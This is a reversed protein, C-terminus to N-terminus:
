SCFAERNVLLYKRCSVVVDKLCGKFYFWLNISVGATIEENLIRLAGASHIGKLSYIKPKTLSSRPCSLKVNEDRATLLLRVKKSTRMNQPLVKKLADRELVNDIYIFAQVEKLVDELERQGDQYKRIEPVTAKPGMLDKLLKKQLDIIDPKSDIDTFLQVESYKCGGIQSFVADALATKGKGGFGHIIVTVAKEESECELLALVEKVSEEIGVIAVLNFAVDM